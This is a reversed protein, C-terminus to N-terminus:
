FCSIVRKIWFEVLMSSFQLIKPIEEFELIGFHKPCQGTLLVDYIRINYLKGIEIEGWFLESHAYEFVWLVTSLIIKLKCYFHYINPKIINM